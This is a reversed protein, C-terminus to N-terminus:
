AKAAVTKKKKSPGTKAEKVEQSETRVEAVLDEIAEGVHAFAERSKEVAQMGTRMFEKALPKLANKSASVIERSVFGTGFGAIFGLGFSALNFM